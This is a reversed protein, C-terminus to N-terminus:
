LYLREHCTNEMALKLYTYDGRKRSPINNHYSQTKSRNCETSECMIVSVHCVHVHNSFIGVHTLTEIRKQLNCRVLPRGNVIERTSVCLPVLEVNCCIILSREMIVVDACYAREPLNITMMPNPTRTDWFQFTSLSMSNLINLRCFFCFTSLTM